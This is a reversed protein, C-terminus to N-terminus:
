SGAPYKVVYDRATSPKVRNVAFIKANTLWSRHAGSDFNYEDYMGVCTGSGTFTVTDGSKVDSARASVTVSIQDQESGGGSSGEGTPPDEGSGTRERNYYWDCETVWEQYNDQCYEEWRYEPDDTPHACYEAPYCIAAALTPKLRAKSNPGIPSDGCGSASLVLVSAALTSLLRTRIRSM